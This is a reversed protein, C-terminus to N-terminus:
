AIKGLIFLVWRVGLDIAKMCAYIILVYKVIM